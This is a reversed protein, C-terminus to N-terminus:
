ERELLAEGFDRVRYCRVGRYSRRADAGAGILFLEVTYGRRRASVLFARQEENPPPGVVCVRGGAPLRMNRGYVLPAFVASDRSPGIRALSELIGVAQATGGRIPVYVGGSADDSLLGTSIIGIDQGISTFFGVLSAATEVAREILNYRGREPYDERSLNLVILVPFFLAPLYEM